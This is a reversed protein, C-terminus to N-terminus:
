PGASEARRGDRRGLGNKCFRSRAPSRGCRSRSSSGRTACVWSPPLCKRRWRWALGRELRVGRLDVCIIAHMFVSSKSDRTTIWAVRAVAVAGELVVCMPGCRDVECDWLWWAAWVLACLVWPCVCCQRSSAIIFGCSRLEVFRRRRPPEPWGAARFGVPWRRRRLKPLVHKIFEVKCASWLVRGRYWAMRLSVSAM